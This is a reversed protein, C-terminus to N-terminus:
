VHIDLAPHVDFCLIGGSAELGSCPFRVMGLVAERLRAVLRCLGGLAGPFSTPRHKVFLDIIQFGHTQPLCQPANKACPQLHDLRM